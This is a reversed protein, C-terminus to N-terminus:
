LHQLAQLLHMENINLPFTHVIIFGFASLSPSLALKTGEPELISASLDVLCTSLAARQFGQSARMAIVALNHLASALLMSLTRGMVEMVLKTWPAVLTAVRSPEALTLLRILHSTLVALQEDSLTVNVGIRPHSALKEALTGAASPSLQELGSLPASSAAFVSDVILAEM